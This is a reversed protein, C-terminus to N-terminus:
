AAVLEGALAVVRGAATVAGDIKGALVHVVRGDQRFLTPRADTADVDPLVARVTYLSGAPTPMGLRCFFRRATALMEERRSHPTWVPGRDLLPALHGPIVPERGVNAAHVSARVDYLAHLGTGPVPDLSTFPGDMVVFSRGAYHGGLEVLAVECVEWRLPEPWGQGYTAMVVLDADLVAPLVWEGLHVAAGAARLQAALLGRLRGVDIFAEPVRVCVSVGQLLPEDAVVHRGGLRGCFALYDRAGTLSGAKAVAYCHRASRDIAAPFREAFAVSDAQSAAATAPSRPYHYGAHLRGQNGRTAGALLGRYREYLDVRHGARALEVAITCGYAGGGVVAAKV